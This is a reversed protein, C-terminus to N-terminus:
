AFLIFDSLINRHSIKVYDVASLSEQFHGIKLDKKGWFGSHYVVWVRLVM